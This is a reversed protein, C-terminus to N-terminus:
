AEWNRLRELGEIVRQRRHEFTAFVFLIAVGLGIGAAYWIWTWGLHASAHYLMTLLAMILFACGTFLFSTVRLAIGALMGAIALGALVLVLWLAEAVGQIFLEATSALYALCLNTYRIATLQGPKLHARNLQAAVLVCLALPVLWLQPHDLLGYGEAQHLVHWLSGNAALAALLGLVLSRRNVALVGYFM